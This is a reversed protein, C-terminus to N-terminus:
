EMCLILTCFLSCSEAFPCLQVFKNHFTSNEMVVLSFRDTGLDILWALHWSSNRAFPRCGRRIKPGIWSVVRDCCAGASSSHALYSTTTCMRCSSWFWLTGAPRLWRTCHKIPQSDPHPFFHASICLSLYSLKSSHLYVACICFLIFHILDVNTKGDVGNMGSFVKLSSLCSKGPGRWTRWSPSSGRCGLSQM